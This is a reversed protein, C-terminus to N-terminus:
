LQIFLPYSIRSIIKMRIETQSRNELKGQIYDISIHREFGAM